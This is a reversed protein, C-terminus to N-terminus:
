PKVSERIKNVEESTLGLGSDVKIEGSKIKEEIEIIKNKIDDNTISNFVDNKALGVGDEKVGLVEYTGYPLTGDVHMKVARLISKDINKIGSSIIHNAKEKDTEMFLSSQDSDVGIVYANKEKAGDIAGLGSQGAVQFLVDVGSNYMALAMEKGKAPNVFEGVYSTAVKIDPDVYKAGQIYGVLFDSIGPNDMGGLFGIVKEPNTKEIGSTTTLAALAGALFGLENTRYFMAYLNEKVTEDSTDFNIFKKDPYMEAAQNLPETMDWVGSIIIDWDQECVDTIVPEWKTKDTGMEIVKTEAGLENKVMELGKNSADFFSKDGLTGPILLVVKLKDENNGDSENKSGCGVFVSTCIVLALVLSLLKKM